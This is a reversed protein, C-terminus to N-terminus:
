TAMETTSGERFGFQEDVLINNDKLYCYLRKYIIKEIIKSFFPLLSIPWYNSIKTKDGMKFLPKVESYKLWDPFVVTSLVKNFIYTLSSLIYPACVKLIKSSIEDYGQSDKRKLSHIIKSIEYTTTTNLRTLSSFPHINQQIHTMPSKSNTSFNKTLLNEVISIFYTNFANATLLPDTTLTGNINLPLGNNINNNNNTITKIINWSTRQKNNSKSILKDYYLFKTWDLDPM